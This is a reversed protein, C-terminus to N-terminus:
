CCCRFTRYNFLFYFIKKIKENKRKVYFVCILFIVFTEYFLFDVFIGVFFTLIFSNVNFYLVSCYNLLFYFCILIVFVFLIMGFINKKRQNKKIEKWIEILKMQKNSELGKFLLDKEKGSIKFFPIVCLILFNSIFIEIIQLVFIKVIKKEFFEVDEVFSFCFVLLIMQIMLYIFLCFLKKKRPNLTSTLFFTVLYIQRYKILLAFFECFSYNKKELDEILNTVHINEEKENIFLVKKFRDNLGFNGNKAYIKKNQKIKTIKSFFDNKQSNNSEFSNEFDNSNREFDNFNLDSIKRNYYKEEEENKIRLRKIRSDESFNNSPEKQSDNEKEDNNKDDFEEEKFYYRKDVDLSLDPEYDKIRYRNYFPSSNIILEDNNFNNNKAKNKQKKPPNSFTTKTQKMDNKNTNNNTKIEDNLNESSSFQNSFKEYENKKYIKINKKINLDKEMKEQNKMKDIKNFENNIINEDFEKNIKISFLRNEKIIEKKINELLNKEKMLQEDYKELLKLCVVFLIIMLYFLVLSFNFYNKIGKIVYWIKVWFFKGEKSFSENSDNIIINFLGFHSSSCKFFYDDTINVNKYIAKIDNSYNYYVCFVNLKPLFENIREERSKKLVSGNNEYVYVPYTFYKDETKFTLHKNIFQKNNKLYYFNTENYINIPFYINIKEKCNLIDILSGTSDLFYIDNLFSASNLYENKYAFPNYKYEILILYINSNSKFIESNCNLADFYTEYFGHDFYRNKFLLNSFYSSYNFNNTINKIEINLSEFYISIDSSNNIIYNKIFKKIYKMIKISYEKFENKQESTLSNNIMIIENLNRLNEKSITINNYVRLYNIENYFINLIEGFVDFIEKYKENIISSYNEIIVDIFDYFNKILVNNFECFKLTSKILFLIYDVLNANFDYSNLSNLNNNNTFYNWFLLHLEQLYNKNDVTLHCNIGTHKENCFCTQKRVVVYCDGQFSCYSQNCIPNEISINSIFSEDNENKDFNLFTHTSNIKNENIDYIDVLSKLIILRNMIETHTFLYKSSLDNSNVALNIIFNSIFNKYFIDNNKSYYKIIIPCFGNYINSNEDVATLYINIQSDNFNLDTFKELLYESNNLNLSDNKLYNTKIKNYSLTANESIYYKYTYNFDGKDLLYYEKLLFYTKNFYGINPLSEVFLCLKDNIDLFNIENKYDVINYGIINNKKKISFPQNGLIDEIIGSKNFEFSFYNLLFPVGYKKYYNSDYKCETPFERVSYFNWLRLERIFVIGHSTIDSEDNSIILKTRSDIFNTFDFHEVNINELNQVELENLYFLKKNVNTSCIIHNWKFYENSNSDTTYLSENTYLIPYCDVKLHTNDLFSIIIKNHNSWEITQKKFNINDKNYEYVYYWFEISYENTNSYSVHDFIIESYANFDPYPLVECFLQNTSSDKKIWYNDNYYCACNLKSDGGCYYCDDICDICINDKDNNDIMKDRNNNCNYNSMDHQILYDKSCTIINSIDNSDSTLINSSICNNSDTSYLKLNYILYKEYSEDNSVIGYPNLIFTSYFRM